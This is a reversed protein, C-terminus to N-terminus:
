YVIVSMHLLVKKTKKEVKKFSESRRPTVSHGKGLTMWATFSVTLVLKVKFVHLLLILITGQM